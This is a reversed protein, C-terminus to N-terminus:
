KVKTVFGAKPHLWVSQGMVVLELREENELVLKQHRITEVMRLVM